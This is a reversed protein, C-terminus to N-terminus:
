SVIEELHEFPRYQTSIELEAENNDEDMFEPFEPIRQKVGEIAILLKKNTKFLTEQDYSIKHLIKTLEKLEALGVKFLTRLGLSKYIDKSDFNGKSLIAELGINLIGKVKRSTEFVLQNDSFDINWSVIASNMLLSLEAAINDQQDVEAIFETLPNLIKPNYILPSLIPIDKIPTCLEKKILVLAKSLSLPSCIENALEVEPVGEAALRKIKDQFGEEELQSLTTTTRLALLQYFLDASTEFILALLRSLYFKREETDASVKIWSYGKDPTFYETDPPSDTPEEFSIADVHKSIFYAIIKLDIVAAIKQLIELSDAEDPLSLWTWFNDENIQDKGWLDLDLIIKRHEPSAMEFLDISSEVGADKILMYVTQAPLTRVLSEPSKSKLIENKLAKISFSAAVTKNIQQSDSQM